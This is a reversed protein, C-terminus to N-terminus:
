AAGEEVPQSDALEELTFDPCEFPTSNAERIATRVYEARSMDCKEAQEDVEQLMEPTMGITVNVTAM